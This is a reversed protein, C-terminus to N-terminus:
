APTEKKLGRLFTDLHTELLAEPDILDTSERPLASRWFAQMLLPAIALFVTQQVDVARFEGRAMGQEVIRVLLAHGRRIVHEFYYGALEPFNRAECFVLKPLGFLPTSGISQWWRRAFMQLLETASSEHRDMQAEMQALTPLIGEEVVARFLAEKNAYYLYLAGKSVGARRAVEEMRAASYGKEVFVALAAALIEQPRAESRRRWRPPSPADSM